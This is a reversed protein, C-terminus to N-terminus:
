RGSYSSQVMRIRRQTSAMEDLLSVLEKRIITTMQNQTRANAFLKRQERTRHPHVNDGLWYQVGDTTAVPPDPLNDTVRVNTLLWEVFKPRTTTWKRETSVSEAALLVLRAKYKMDALCDEELTPHVDTEMETGMPRRRARGMGPLSLYDVLLGNGGLTLESALKKAGEAYDNMAPPMQRGSAFIVLGILGIYLASYRPPWAPFFIDPDDLAGLTTHPVISEVLAVLEADTCNKERALREQFLKVLSQIGQLSRRKLKDREKKIRRASENKNTKPPNM